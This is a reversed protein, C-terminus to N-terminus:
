RGHPRHARIFRKPELYRSPDGYGGGLPLEPYARLELHLHAKYLGDVNGITGLRQGRPVRQGARVEIKGLHAYLSEVVQRRWGSARHVVRVVNGWGGGLDGAFSVEGAAIAVVPDGLDTDGGGSGNWDEGLHRNRGFPQADYYGRGDPPGVPFDFGDAIPLRAAWCEARRKLRWDRAELYVTVALAAAALSPVVVGLLRRHVTM